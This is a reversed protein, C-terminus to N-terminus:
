HEAEEKTEHAIGALAQDVKSFASGMKVIQSQPITARAQKQEKTAANLDKWFGVKSSSALFGTNQFTALDAAGQEAEQVFPNNATLDADAPKQADALLAVPTGANLAKTDHAFGTLAQDMSSFAGQMALMQSDSIRTREEKHEQSAAKMDKWFGVKSSSTLLGTSGYTALDAAGKMAEQVFPNNASLDEESPKHEADLLAVRPTADNIQKEDHAFGSFAKDMSSFAGQMSALKSEPIRTREEQHEQTAATMDKWFGVKNSSTLLGTNQYTSLDAAGQMAEQVFPNNPSVDLHSPKEAAALALLAVGVICMRAM